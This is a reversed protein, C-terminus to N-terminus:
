KDFKFAFYGGGVVVVFINISFFFSNMYMFLFTSLIFICLCFLILPVPDSSEESGRRYSSVAMVKTCTSPCSGNVTGLCSQIFM